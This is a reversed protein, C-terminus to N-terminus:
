AVEAIIAATALGRSLVEDFGHSYYCDGCVAVTVEPTQPVREVLHGTIHLTAPQGCECKEAIRVAQLFGIAQMIEHHVDWYQGARETKGKAYAVGQLQALRDVIIWLESLTLKAQETEKDPLIAM